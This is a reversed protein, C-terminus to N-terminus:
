SLGRVNEFRRHQRLGGRRQRRILLREHHSNNQALLRPPLGGRVMISQMGPAFYAQAVAYGPPVVVYGPPVGFGARAIFVGPAVVYEWPLISQAMALSTGGALIAAVITLDKLTTM